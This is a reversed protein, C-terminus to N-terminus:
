RSGGERSKVGLLGFLMELFELAVIKPLEWSMVSVNRALESRDIRRRLLLVFREDGETMLRRLEVIPEGLDDGGPPREDQGNM